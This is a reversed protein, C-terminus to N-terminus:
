SVGAQGSHRDSEKVFKLFVVSSVVLSSVQSLYPIFGRGVSFRFDSYRFRGLPGFRARKSNEAKQVNSNTEFKSNRIQRKPGEVNSLVHKARTM